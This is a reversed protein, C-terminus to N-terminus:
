AMMGFALSTPKMHNCMTHQMPHLRALTTALMKEHSRYREMCPGPTHHSSGCLRAAIALYADPARSSLFRLATAGLDNAASTCSSMDCSLIQVPSGTTTFDAPAHCSLPNVSLHQRYAVQQNVTTVVLIGLSSAPTFSSFSCVCIRMRCCHDSQVHLHMEASWHVGRGVLLAVHSPMSAALPREPLCNRRPRM